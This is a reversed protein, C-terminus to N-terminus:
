DGKCHVLVNMGSALHKVIDPILAILDQQLPINRDKIPLHYFLFGNEQAKRPYDIIGIKQMEHWELLCVIIQIGNDKIAQLDASLDRNWRKDKKGPAISVALRGKHNINEPLIFHAIDVIKYPYQDSSIRSNLSSQTQLDTNEIPVIVTGNGYTNYQYTM